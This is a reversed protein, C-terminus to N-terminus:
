ASKSGTWVNAAPLDSNVAPSIWLQAAVSAEVHKWTVPKNHPKQAKSSFSSIVASSHTKQKNTKEHKKLLRSRFFLSKRFTFISRLVATHLLSAYDLVSFSYCPTIVGSIM